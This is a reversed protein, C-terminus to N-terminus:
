ETAPRGEEEEEAAEEAAEEAEARDRWPDKEDFDTRRRGERRAPRTCAGGFDPDWFEPAKFEAKGAAPPGGPAPIGDMWGGEGRLATRVGGRRHLFRLAAAYYAGTALLIGVQWPRTVAVGGPLVLPPGTTLVAAAKAVPGAPPPAPAPAPAPAAAGRGLLRLAGPRRM